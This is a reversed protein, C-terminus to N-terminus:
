RDNMMHTLLNYPNQGEITLQCAEEYNRKGAQCVESQKETSFQCDGYRKQIVLVYVHVALM